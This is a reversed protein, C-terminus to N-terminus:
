RFGIGVTEHTIRGIEADVIVIVTYGSVPFKRFTWVIQWIGHGEPVKLYMEKNHGKKMLEVWTSNNYTVESIQSFQSTAIGHRVLEAKKSVDMAREKTLPVTSSTVLTLSSM